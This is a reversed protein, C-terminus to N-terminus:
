SACLSLRAARSRVSLTSLGPTFLRRTLARPLLVSLGVILARLQSLLSAFARVLQSFGLALRRAVLLPLGQLVLLRLRGLL